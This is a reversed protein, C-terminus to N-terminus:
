WIDAHRVQLSGSFATIPDAIWYEGVGMREYLHKKLATDNSSTSPSLIEVVLDPAGDIKAHTIMRTRDGLVVVLDPQVIDHDTLQVDVPANFAL